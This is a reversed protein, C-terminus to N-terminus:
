NESQRATLIKRITLKDDKIEIVLKESCKPCFLEINSGDGAKLLKYGCYPCVLYYNM